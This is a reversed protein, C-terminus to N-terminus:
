MGLPNAPNVAPTWGQGLANNLEEISVDILQGDDPETALNGDDKPNKFQVQQALNPTEKGIRVKARKPNNYDDLEEITLYALNYSKGGIIGSFTIPTGLFATPDIKLTAGLTQVYSPKDEEESESDKAEIWQRFTVIM